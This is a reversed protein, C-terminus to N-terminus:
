RLSPFEGQLFIAIENIHFMGWIGIILFILGIIARKIDQQKFYSKMKKEVEDAIKESDTKEKKTKM